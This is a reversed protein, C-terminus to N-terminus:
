WLESAGTLLRGWAVGMLILDRLSLRDVRYEISVGTKSVDMSERHSLKLQEM